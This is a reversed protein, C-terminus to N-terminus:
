AMCVAGDLLMDAGNLSPFADSATLCVLLAVEKPDLMNSDSTSKILDKNIMDRMEPNNVIINALINTKSPGPSICNIRVGKPALEFSAQRTFMQLAAKSVTYGLMGPKTRRSMSTGINIINGKTKELHPLALQSLHYPIRFNVNMLDDLREMTDDSLFSFIVKGASNVLIDLKGYTEVTKNVVAECAGPQTLDLRVWLPVVNSVEVCKNVTQLLRVEDRGVLSVKAGYKAFAVATEAGIGSSAGTVIAVKGSLDIDM